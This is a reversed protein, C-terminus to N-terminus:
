AEKGGAQHLYGMGFVPTHILACNELIHLCRDFLAAVGDILATLQAASFQNSHLDGEAYRNFAIFRSRRIRDAPAIISDKVQAASEAQSLIIFYIQLRGITGKHPMGFYLFIRIRPHDVGMDKEIAFFLDKVPGGVANLAGKTSIKFVVLATFCAGGAGMFNRNKFFCIVDLHRGNFGNVFYGFRPSHVQRFLINFPFNSNGGGLVTDRDIQGAILKHVIQATHPCINITRKSHSTGRCNRCFIAALQAVLKGCTQKAGM